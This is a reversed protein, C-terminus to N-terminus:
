ALCVRPLCAIPRTRFNLARNGKPFSLTLSHEKSSVKMETVTVDGGDGVLDDGLKRFGVQQFVSVGAAM